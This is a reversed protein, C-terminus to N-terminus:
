GKPPKKANSKGQPKATPPEVEDDDSEGSQEFQLQGNIAVKRPDSDLVVGSATQDLAQNWEDIEKLVQKVQRGTAGIIDPMSRIGARAALIDAKVDELPSIMEHKPPSWEVGVVVDQKVVQMLRLSEIFWEWIPQCFMPIMVHWQVHEVFRRYQLIGMRNSSYNAQSLDGTLLEYPLRGGAAMRRLQARLYAEMGASIAPNNFKIDKGGRLYAFMGPEFREVPFGSSDVVAAGEGDGSTEDLGIPGDDDDGPVVVGVMCAELKKRILEAQNYEDLDKMSIVLPSFWTVGRTQQRQMEFLHAVEEVPVRASTRGLRANQVSNGPHQPFLWYGKRSGDKNLEVGNVILNSGRAENKTSDLFEAELIRIRLPSIQDEPKNSLVVPVNSGKAYLKRALVDGGEVMERCALYQMGYFDMMGEISAHKVWADFMKNITADLPESGTNARPVIGAGVINDAHATVLKAAYPNNRVLDRARQRLMEGGQTIEADASTRATRWNATRRTRSAGEYARANEIIDFQRRYNARKAATAPAVAALAREFWNAM